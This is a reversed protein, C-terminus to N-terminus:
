DWNSLEIIEVEKGCSLCMIDNSSIDFDLDRSSCKRCKQNGRYVLKQEDVLNFMFSNGYTGCQNCKYIKYGYDESLHVKGTKILKKVQFKENPLCYSLLGYRSSLNFLQEESCSCMGVGLFFEHEKDCHQCKVTISTGM